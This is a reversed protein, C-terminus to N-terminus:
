YTLLINSGVHHECSLCILVYISILIYTLLNTLLATIKHKEIEYRKSNRYKLDNWRPRRKCEKSRFSKRLIADRHRFM